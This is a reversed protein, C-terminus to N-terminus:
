ALSKCVDSEPVCFEYPESGLERVHLAFENGMGPMRSTKHDKWTRGADRSAM